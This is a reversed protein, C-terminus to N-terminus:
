AAPWGTGPTVHEVIMRVSLVSAIGGINAALLMGPPILFGGAYTLWAFADNRLQDGANIGGFYLHVGNGIEVETAEGVRLDFNAAGTGTNHLSMARLRLTCERSVMANPRNGKTDLLPFMAGNGPERTLFQVTSFASGQGGVDMTLTLEENGVRNPLDPDTLNLAARINDLRRSFLSTSM